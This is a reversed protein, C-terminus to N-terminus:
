SSARYREFYNAVDMHIITVIFVFYGSVMFSMLEAQEKDTKSASRPALSSTGHAGLLIGLQQFREPTLIGDGSVAPKNKSLFEYIKRLKEVDEPYKKFYAENRETVKEIPVDTSSRQSSTPVLKVTLLNTRSM